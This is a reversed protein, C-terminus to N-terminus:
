RFPIPAKGLLRLRLINLATKVSRIKVSPRPAAWNLQTVVVGAADALAVYVLGVPKTPTGGGPGAVGTVSLAYDSGFKARCGVAMAEAV